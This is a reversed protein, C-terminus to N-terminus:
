QKVLKAMWARSGTDLHLLYVGPVLDNLAMEIFNDAPSNVAAMGSRVKRGQMDTITFRMEEGPIGGDFWLKVQSLFPNPVVRLTGGPQMEGVGFFGEIDVPIVQTNEVQYTNLNRYQIRIEGLFETEPACLVGYREGPYVDVTDTIEEEPLPRGDSDIVRANLAGPFIVRNSMYGINALRVYINSNAMGSLVEEELQQDGLGNVLFHQPHYLPIPVPHHAMSTDHEHLLVSDHHWMTDIESMFLRWDSQFEYGGDWVRNSGDTPRVILMGYMGAQVHISSAVHCHYMYTGPHPAKFRYYGHEMHHVEFSLHPVGDNQQNVDLGHLHITHPAGQSINWFDITVSDGSNVEITPGPVNPNDLLDEAFGFVRIANGDPLIKTGVNRGILLIPDQAYLNIHLLIGAAILM